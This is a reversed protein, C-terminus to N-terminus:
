SYIFLDEWTGFRAGSLRCWIESAHIYIYKQDDDGLTQGLALYTLQDCSDVLLIIYLLFSFFPLKQNRTRKTQNGLTNVSFVLNLSLSIWIEHLWDTLLTMLFCSIVTIYFRGNFRVLSNILAHPQWPLRKNTNKITKLALHQNVM